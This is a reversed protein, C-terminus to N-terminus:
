KDPRVPVLSIPDPDGPKFRSKLINVYAGDESLNRLGNELCLVTAKESNKDNPCFTKAWDSFTQKPDDSKSIEDLRGFTSIYSSCLVDVFGGYTRRLEEIRTRIKLCFERAKEYYGGM